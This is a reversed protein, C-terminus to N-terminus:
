YKFWRTENNVIDYKVSNATCFARPQMFYPDARTLKDQSSFHNNKRTVAFDNNPVRMVSLHKQDSALARGMATCDMGTAYTNLAEKRVDARMARDLSVAPDTLSLSPASFSMSMKEGRRSLFEAKEARKPRLTQMENAYLKNDISYRKPVPTGFLDKCREQYSSYNGHNEVQALQTETRRQELARKRPHDDPASLCKRVLDREDVPFKQRRAGMLHITHRGKSGVYHDDHRLSLHYIEHEDKNSLINYSHGGLRAALGKDNATGYGRQGDYYNFSGEVTRGMELDNKKSAM